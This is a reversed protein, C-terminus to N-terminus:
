YDDCHVSAGIEKLPKEDGFQTKYKNNLYGILIKEFEYFSLEMMKPIVKLNDYEDCGYIWFMGWHNREFIKKGNETVWDYQFIDDYKRVLELKKFIKDFRNILFDYKKDESIIMEQIKKNCRDNYYETLEDYKYESIYDRIESPELENVGYEELFTLWKLEEIVGSVFEDENGYDCVMMNPLLANILRDILGIRRRVSKSINEKIRMKKVM